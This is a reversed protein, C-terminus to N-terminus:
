TISFYWKILRSQSFFIMYFKMIRITKRLTDFEPLVLFKNAYKNGKQSVLLSFNFSMCEDGVNKIYLHSSFLISQITDKQCGSIIKDLSKLHIEPLAVWWVWILRSLNESFELRDRIVHEEMDAYSMLSVINSHKRIFLDCVIRM